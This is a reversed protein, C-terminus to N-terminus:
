RRGTNPLNQKREQSWSESGSVKHIQENARSTEERLPSKIECRCWGLPGPSNLSTWNAKPFSPQFSGSPELSSSKRETKARGRGKARHTLLKVQSAM